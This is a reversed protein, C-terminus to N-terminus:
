RIVKIQDAVIAIEANGPFNPENKGRQVIRAGFLEVEKAHSRGEPGTILICPEEVGRRRNDAIRSRDVAIYYTM